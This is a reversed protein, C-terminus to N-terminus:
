LTSLSLSLFTPRDGKSVNTYVSHTQLVEDLDTEINSRFELVKNKYCAIEFRIGGKKLRVISVNTLRNQNSPTFIQRSM